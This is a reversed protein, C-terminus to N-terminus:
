RIFSKIENDIVSKAEELLGSTKPDGYYGWCSDVHEGNSDEIVFGYVEGRLYNDYTEIEGELIRECQAVRKGSVRKVGFNTAADKRAVLAFGIVGSDFGMHYQKFTDHASITIGSHDLMHVRKIAVPNYTKRLYSEMENWGSFQDSTLNHKDGLQYRNHFFFFRGLNDWETRPDGADEHQKIQIKYGKYEVTNM